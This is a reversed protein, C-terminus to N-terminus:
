LCGVTKLVDCQDGYAASSVFKLPFSLDGLSFTVKLDIDLKHMESHNSNTEPQEIPEVLASFKQNQLALRLSVLICMNGELIYWRAIDSPLPCDAPRVTLIAWM